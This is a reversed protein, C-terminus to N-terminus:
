KVSDLKSDRIKVGAAKRQKNTGLLKSELDIMPKEVLLQLVISGACAMVFLLLALSLENVESLHFIQRSQFLVMYLFIYHLLYGGYSIKAIVNFMSCRLFLSVPRLNGVLCPATLLFLGAVWLLKGFTNWTMAFGESWTQGTQTVRPYFTIFTLIGLGSVFSIISRATTRQIWSFINTQGQKYEKFIIGVWLGAICVSMRVLPNPYAESIYDATNVNEIEAFPYFAIGTKISYLYSSVISILLLSLIASIGLNKNRIYAWCLFPLVLFIQFDCALYWGWSFCGAGNTLFNNMLLLNKWSQSCLQAQEVYDAWLPGDGLHVTIKWFFLIAVCYAPWLRIWRHFVIKFYNKFGIPMRKLKSLMIFGTFFGGLYFFTDVAYLTAFATWVWLTNIFLPVYTPNSLFFITEDFCHGYVITFFAFARIGNLANLNQDHSADEENNFISKFNKSLDFSELLNKWNSTETSLIINVSNVSGNIRGEQNERPLLGSLVTAEQIETSGAKSVRKKNYAIITGAIAAFTPMIIVLCAIYLWFGNEPKAAQEPDIFSMDYGTINQGSFNAIMQIFYNTYSQLQSMNCVRPGCIGTLSSEGSMSLMLLSYKQDPLSTCTDYDGLDNFSHGSLLLLNQVEPSYNTQNSHDTINEFFESCADSPPDDIFAAGRCSSNMLHITILSLIAKWIM